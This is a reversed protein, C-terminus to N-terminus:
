QETFKYIPSEPKMIEKLDVYKIKVGIEGVAYAAIEYPVYNFTLYIGDTSLNNNPHIDKVDIIGADVLSDPNKVDMIKCLSDIIMSTLKEESEEIFIDNLSLKKANAKDWIDYTTSYYGHAGGNFSSYRFVTNYIDADEYSCKAECNFSWPTDTPGFMEKYAEVDEENQTAMTNIKAKRASLLDMVRAGTASSIITLRISDGCPSVGEEPMTLKYGYNFQPNNDNNNAHGTTDFAYVSTPYGQEAATDVNKKESTCCCLSATLATLVINKLVNKTM